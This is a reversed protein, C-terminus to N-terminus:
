AEAHVYASKPLIKRIVKEIEKFSLIVIPAASSQLYRKLGIYKDGKPMFVGREQRGYL